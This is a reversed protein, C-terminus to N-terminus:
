HHHDIGFASIEDIMVSEGLMFIAGRYSGADLGNVTMTNNNSFPLNSMSVNGPGQLSADYYRNGILGTVNAQPSVEVIVHFGFQTIPPGAYNAPIVGLNLQMMHPQGLADQGQIYVIRSKVGRLAFNYSLIAAYGQCNITLPNAISSAQLATIFALEKFVLYSGINVGDVDIPVETIYGMPANTTYRLLPCHYVSDTITSLTALPVQCLMGSETKASLNADSFKSFFNLYEILIQRNAAGEEMYIPPAPTTPCTYVIIKNSYTTDKKGDIEYNWILEMESMLIDNNPMQNEKAELIINKNEGLRLTGHYELHNFPANTAGKVYATLKVSYTGKPVIKTDSILVSAKIKVKEVKDAIYVAVTQKTKTNNWEPAMIRGSVNRCRIASETPKDPTHQFFLETLKLSVVDFEIPAPGGGPPRDKLKNKVKTLIQTLVLAFSVIGLGYLLSSIGSVSSIVSVTSAGAAIVSPIVLSGGASAPFSPKFIKNILSIKEKSLGEFTKTINEVTIDESVFIDINKEILQKDGSLFNLAMLQETEGITPVLAFCESYLGLIATQLTSAKWETLDSVPVVTKNLRYSYPKTSLHETTRQVTHLDRKEIMVSRSSVYEVPIGTDFSYLAILGDEFIFPHNELFDNADTQGLTKDFVGVMSIFHECTYDLNPSNNDFANGIKVEGRARKGIAETLSFTEAIGNLYFVISKATYSVIIDWWRYADLKTVCSINETGIQLSLKVSTLSVKETYIVVADPQDFDGNAFLVQKNKESPRLYLKLYIAFSSSAFGGPNVHASNNMSAYKGPSPVYVHTLDVIACGNVASVKLRKPGLDQIESTNCDIFTYLDPMEEKNTYNTQYIYKKYDQPTIAASYLRFSRIYGTFKQGIQIESTSIMKKDICEETQVPIGNIAFVLKQSDYSVFFHIWENSDYKIFGNKIYKEGISPHSFGIYGNNLGFSFGDKQSIICQSGSEIFLWIDFSFDNGTISDPIFSLYSENLGNNDIHCAYYATKNCNEM